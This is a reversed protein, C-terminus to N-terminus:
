RQLVIKHPHSSRVRTRTAPWGTRWFTTMSSTLSRWQITDGKAWACHFLTRSIRARLMAQLFISRAQLFM